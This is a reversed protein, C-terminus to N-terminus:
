LEDGEADMEIGHINGRIHCTAANSDIQIYWAETLEMPFQFSSGFYSSPGIVSMEQNLMYQLLGAGNRISFSALSGAVTDRLHRSYNFLLFVKGAPVTYLIVTAGLANASVFIQTGNYGPRTGVWKTRDAIRYIM